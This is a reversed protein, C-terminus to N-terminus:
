RDILGAWMVTWERLKDQGRRERADWYPTAYGYPHLTGRKRRLTGLKEHSDLFM